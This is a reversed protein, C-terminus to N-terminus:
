IYGNTSLWDSVSSALYGAFALVGIIVAARSLGRGRPANMGAYGLLVAGSALVAPLGSWWFLIFVVALIALVLATPGQSTKALSRRLVPGFIVVAAATTVAGAVVLSSLGFQKGTPGGAWIGVASQVMALAVSGVAVPLAARKARSVVLDDSPQIYTESM